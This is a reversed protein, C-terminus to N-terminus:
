PSEFFATTHPHRHDAHRHPHSFLGCLDGLFHRRAAVAKYSAVALGHFPRHRAIWAFPALWWIRSGLFLVADTEGLVSGDALLLKMEVTPHRADLGLRAALEPFQLPVFPFGRRAFVPASHFRVGRCFPCAADYGIWGNVSKANNDTNETKM